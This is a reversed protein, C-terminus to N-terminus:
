SPTKIVLADFFHPLSPTPMTRLINIIECDKKLRAESGRETM